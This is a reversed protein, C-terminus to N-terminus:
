LAIQKIFINELNISQHSTFILLGKSNVHSILRSIVFQMANQDLATFPEDLIWLKASSALIRALAVRQRQGASLKFCFVDLLNKLALPQLIEEQIANASRLNEAVTLGLKVAIKHGLYALQTKGDSWYVNGATPNSLGAIIRLLSSKGIGNPGVIQLTEGPSLTFNLNAFLVRDNRICTLQTACLNNQYM